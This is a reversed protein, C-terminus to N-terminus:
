EPCGLARAQMSNLLGPKRELSEPHGHTHDIGRKEDPRAMKDFVTSARWRPIGASCLTAPGTGDAELEQSQPLPELEPALQWQEGQMRLADSVRLSSQAHASGCVLAAMTLTATRLFM